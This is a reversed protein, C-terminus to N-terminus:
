NNAAARAQQPLQLTMGTFRTNGKAFVPSTASELTEVIPSPMTEPDPIVLTSPNHLVLSDPGLIVPCDSSQPYVIALSNNDVSNSDTPSPSTHSDTENTEDEDDEDSDHKEEKEYEIQRMMTIAIQNEETTTPTPTSIPTMTLAPRILAVERKVGVELPHHSEEDDADLPRDTPPIGEMAKAELMETHAQALIYARMNNTSAIHSKGAQMPLINPLFHNTHQTQSSGHTPISNDRSKDALTPLPLASQKNPTSTSTPYSKIHSQEALWSRRRPQPATTSPTSKVQAFSPRRSRDPTHLNSSLALDIEDDDSAQALAKFFASAQHSVIMESISHNHTHTPRQRQPRTQSALSSITPSLLSKKNPSNAETTPPSTVPPLLATIPTPQIFGTTTTAAASQVNAHGNPSHAHRDKGTPSLTRKDPSTAGSRRGDKHSEPSKVLNAGPAFDVIVTEPNSPDLPILEDLYAPVRVPVNALPDVAQTFPLLGIAGPTTPTSSNPSQRANSPHANSRARLPTGAYFRAGSSSDRDDKEKQLQQQKALKELHGKYVSSIFLTPLTEALAQQKDLLANPKAGEVMLALRHEEEEELQQVTDNDTLVLESKWQSRPMYWAGLQKKPKPPSEPQIFSSGTAPNYSAPRSRTIKFTPQPNTPSPSMAKRRAAVEARHREQPSMMEATRQHSLMAWDASDRMQAATLIDGIHLEHALEFGAGHDDHRQLQAKRQMQRTLQLATLTDGRLIAETLEDTERKKERRLKSRVKSSQITEYDLKTPHNVMDAMKRLLPAHDAKFRASPDAYLSPDVLSPPSSPFTPSGPMMSVHNSEDTHPNSSTEGAETLSQLTMNHARQVTAEEVSEDAGVDTLSSPTSTFREFPNDHTDAEEIASLQSSSTLKSADILITGRKANNGDDDSEAAADAFSVSLNVRSKNSKIPTSRLITTDNVAITFEQIRKAEEEEEALKAKAQEDQAQQIRALFRMRDEATPENILTDKIAEPIDHAEKVMTSDKWLIIQSIASTAGTAAALDIDSLHRRHKSALGLEHKLRKEDAFPDTLSGLLKAHYARALEVRAVKARADDDLEPDTSSDSEYGLPTVDDDSVYTDDVEGSDEEDGMTKEENPIPDGVFTIGRNRRKPPNSSGNGKTSSSSSNSSSGKHGKKRPQVRPTRDLIPHPALLPKEHSEKISEETLRIIANELAEYTPNLDYAVTTRAGETPEDRRQQHENSINLDKATLKAPLPPLEKRSSSRTLTPDVPHISQLLQQKAMQNAAVRARRIPTDAHFQQVSPSSKKSPSTAPPSALSTFKKVSPSIPHTSTLAAAHRNSPSSEFLGLRERLGAPVIPPSFYTSSSPPHSVIDALITELKSPSTVTSTASSPSPSPSATVTSGKTPTQYSSDNSSEVSNGQERERQVRQAYELGERTLVTPPQYQYPSGTAASDDFTSETLFRWSM